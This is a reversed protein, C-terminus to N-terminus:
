INRVANSGRVDIWGPRQAQTSNDVSSVILNWVNSRSKGAIPLNNAPEAARNMTPSSAGHDCLTVNRTKKMQHIALANRLAACSPIIEVMSHSFGVDAKLGLPSLTSKMEMGRGTKAAQMPTWIVRQNTHNPMTPWIQDPRIAPTRKAPTSHDHRFSCM